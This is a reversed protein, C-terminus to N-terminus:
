HRELLFNVILIQCVIRVRPGDQIVQAALQVAPYLVRV